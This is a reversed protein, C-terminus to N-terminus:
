CPCHQNTVALSWEEWIQIRVEILYGSSMMHTNTLILQILRNTPKGLGEAHSPGEDKATRDNLRDVQEQRITPAHVHTKLLPQIDSRTM